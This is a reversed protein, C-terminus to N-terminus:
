VHSLAGAIAHCIVMHCDEQIRIDRFPVDIVLDLGLATLPTQRSDGTLVITRAKLAQATEMAYIVNRSKGSCSIGIVVDSPRLLGTLPLSFMNDWGLDNGYATVAPTMDPISVARLKCMKLLDNAFHSATSASGGNGLIFVMSDRKRCDKLIETAQNVFQVPVGRLATEVDTRYSSFSQFNM